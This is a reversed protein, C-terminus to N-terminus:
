WDHASSAFPRIDVYEGAVTHQRSPRRDGSKSVPVPLVYLLSSMYHCWTLRRYGTRTPTALV